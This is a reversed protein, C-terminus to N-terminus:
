ITKVILSEDFILLAHVYDKYCEEIDVDNLQRSEVDKFYDIACELKQNLKETDLEISVYVNM